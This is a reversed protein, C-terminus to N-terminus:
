LHGNNLIPIKFLIPIEFLQQQEGSNVKMWQSTILHLAKASMKYSFYPIEQPVRTPWGWGDEGRALRWGVWDICSFTYFCSQSCVSLFCIPPCFAKTPINVSIGSVRTHYRDSFASKTVPAKLRPCATFANGLQPEPHSPSTFYATILSATYRWTVMPVPLAWSVHCWLRWIVFPCTSQFLSVSFLQLGSTGALQILRPAVDNESKYRLVM